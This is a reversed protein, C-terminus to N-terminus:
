IIITGITILSTQFNGLKECIKYAYKAVFISSIKNIATYFGFLAVPVIATEMVPQLIWFLIITFAGFISPFEGFRACRCILYAFSHCLFYRNKHTGATDADGNCSADAGSLVDHQGVVVKVICLAFGQYQLIGTESFLNCLISITHLCCFAGCFLWWVFRAETWRQYPSLFVGSRMHLRYKASSRNNQTM